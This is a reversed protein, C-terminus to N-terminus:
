HTEQRHPKLLEIKGIIETRTFDTRYKTGTFPEAAESGPTELKAIELAPHSSATLMALTNAM